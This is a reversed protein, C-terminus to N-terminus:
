SFARSETSGLEKAPFFRRLVGGATQEILFYNNTVISLM